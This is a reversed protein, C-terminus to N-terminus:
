NDVDFLSGTAMSTSPELFLSLVKGLKPSKSSKRVLCLELKMHSRTPLHKADSRDVFFSHIFHNKIERSLIKTLNSLMHVNIRVSKIHLPLSIHSDNLLYPWIKPIICILVSILKRGGGWCLKGASDCVKGMQACAETKGCRLFRQVSTPQMGWHATPM